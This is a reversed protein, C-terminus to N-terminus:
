GFVVEDMVALQLFVDATDADWNGSIVDAYHNEYQEQMLKYGKKLNAKSVTGLVDGTEVDFVRFEKNDEFMRKFIHESPSLGERFKQRTAESFIINTSAWYSCAGEYATI